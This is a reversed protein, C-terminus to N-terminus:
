ASQTELKVRVEEGREPEALSAEELPGAYQEIFALLKEVEQVYASEGSSAHQVWGKWSARHPERWIRLVFSERRKKM